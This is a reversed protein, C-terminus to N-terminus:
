HICAEKFMNVWVNSHWQAPSLKATNIMQEGQHITVVVSSIMDVWLSASLFSKVTPGGFIKGALQEAYQMFVAYPKSICIWESNMEQAARYDVM